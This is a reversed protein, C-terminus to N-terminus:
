TLVLLEKSVVVGLAIGMSMVHPGGKIKICFFKATECFQRLKAM